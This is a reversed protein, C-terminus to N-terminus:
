RSPVVVRASRRTHKMLWLFFVILIIALSCLVLYTPGVFYFLDCSRAVRRVRRLVTQTLKPAFLPRNQWAGNLIRDIERRKLRPLRSMFVHLHMELKWVTFSLVGTTM